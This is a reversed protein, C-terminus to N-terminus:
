RLCRDLFEAFGESDFEIDLRGDERSIRMSPCFYDADDVFFHPSGKVGRQQGEHWDLLVQAADPADIPLGALLDTLASQSAIDVGDEFLATRVRVSFQEGLGPDVGYAAAEWALAPMSTKPFTAPDFGHFLDPAVSEQLAAVKPQLDQGSEAHGNVM